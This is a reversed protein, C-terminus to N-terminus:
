NAEEFIELVLKTNMDISVCRGASDTYIDDDFNVFTIIIVENSIEILVNTKESPGMNLANFAIQVFDMCEIYNSNINVNQLTNIINTTIINQIMENGNLNNPKKILIDSIKYYPTFSVPKADNLLKTKVVFLVAFATILVVIITYKKM